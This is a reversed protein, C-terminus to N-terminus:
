LIQKMKSLEPKMKRASEPKLLLVATDPLKLVLIPRKRRSTLPKYILPIYLLILIKHWSGMLSKILLMPKLSGM